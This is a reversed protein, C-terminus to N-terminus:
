CSNTGGFEKAKYPLRGVAANRLPIKRGGLAKPRIFNLSHDGCTPNARLDNPPSSVEQAFRLFTGSKTNPLQPKLNIFIFIFLMRNGPQHLNILDLFWWKYSICGRLSVTGRSFLGKAGFSFARRGKGAIKLPRFRENWPPYIKIM